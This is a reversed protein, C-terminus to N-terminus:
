QNATWDFSTSVTWGFTNGDFDTFTGTGVGNSFTGTSNGTRAPGTSGDDNIENYNWKYTLAGNTLNLTGVGYFGVYDTNNWASLYATGSDLVAVEFHGGTAFSDGSFSGAYLGAGANTPTSVTFTGKPTVFDDSAGWTGWVGSGHGGVLMGRIGYTGDSTTGEIVGDATISGYAIPDDSGVDEIRDGVNIFYATFNGNAVLIAIKGPADGALTGVYSGVPSYSSLLDSAYQNMLASSTVDPTKTADAAIATAVKAELYDAMTQFDTSALATAAYVAESALADYRSLAATAAATSSASLNRTTQQATDATTTVIGNLSYLTSGVTTSARVELKKSVPVSTFGYAGTADTKVTSGILTSTGVEYLGVTANPLPVDAAKGKSAAVLGGSYSAAPVLVKGSLMYTVTGGGGGGGGGTGGGGGGGGGGCSSLCFSLMLAAAFAVFSRQVKGDIFSANFRM